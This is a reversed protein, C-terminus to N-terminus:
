KGGEEVPEQEQWTETVFRVAAPIAAANEERTATHKAFKVYDSLEFLDKMEMFLEPSLDKGKLASFIEDTTQEMADIGYRAAMYERVTDTIGSYFQKQKEPAWFKDGRLKDLKRLAIIYAPEHFVVGAEKRKHMMVLCVITIVVLALLWIALIYPLIEKFTLPYRIQGKLDHPVFTATDVPMTRVSLLKPNFALTDLTGDPLRRAVVIPPLLFDGEDFATIVASVEIDCPGGKRSRRITDAQWSSVVEVSDMLGKSLDPLAIQTGPEVGELLFGYRLQDAILVSDRKQLQRLFSGDKPIVESRALLAIAAFAIIYLFKKM